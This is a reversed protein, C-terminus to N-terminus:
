YNASVSIVVGHAPPCKGDVLDLGHEHRERV